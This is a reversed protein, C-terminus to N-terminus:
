YSNWYVLNFLLFLTLFLCFSVFDIMNITQSACEKNEDITPLLPSGKGDIQRLIGSLEKKDKYKGKKKELISRKHEKKKSMTTCEVKNFSTDSVRGLAIIIAFELLAAVVFGLSCLLYVGLANLM